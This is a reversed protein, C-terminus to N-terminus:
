ASSNGEAAHAGCRTGSVIDRGCVQGCKEGRLPYDCGVRGERQQRRREAAAKIAAYREENKRRADALAAEAEAPLRVGMMFADWSGWRRELSALRLEADPSRWLGPAPPKM